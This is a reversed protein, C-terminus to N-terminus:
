IVRLENSNMHIVAGFLASNVVEKSRCDLSSRSTTLYLRRQVVGSRHESRLGEARSPAPATAM